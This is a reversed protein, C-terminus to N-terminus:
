LAAIVTQVAGLHNSLAALGLGGALIIGKRQKM